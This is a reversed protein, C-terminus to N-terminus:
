RALAVIAGAAAAVGFVAAMAIAARLWPARGMSDDPVSQLDLVPTQASGTLITREIGALREAVVGASAPRYEPRKMMLQSILTDLETTVAPNLSRPRPPTDVALSTLVELITNGNFPPRGTVMRYLVCGLGFLDARGDVKKGQVQEPAVYGPTGVGVGDPTLRLDSADVPRVLGFDLIKVQGKPAELWINAPKIDRHILGKAHAVALGEATQRAIRVAERIPVTPERLCRDQLTEGELLEMALYLSERSEGVQYVTIIHPTRVAAAARAERLFRQRAIPSRAVSANMVKVAVKRHLQTDVAEYVTGMGGTGLIKVLQYPGLSGISWGTSPKDTGDVPTEASSEAITVTFAPRSTSDPDEDPRYSLLSDVHKQEVASLPKPPNRVAGVLVDSVRLSETRKACPKCGGIHFAIRMAVDDPLGGRLFESLTSDNPCTTTLRMAARSM